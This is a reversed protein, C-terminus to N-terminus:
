PKPFEMLREPHAVLRWGARQYVEQADNTSLMWRRVTTLEPHTRAISMLWSGIGKGRCEEAIFIDSLWAFRTYDTILRGFGVQQQQQYIGFALSNAISRETMARPQNQAWYSKEALQQHVWDIDLKARDTSIILGDRYWEIPAAILPATM